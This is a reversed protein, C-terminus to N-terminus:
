DIGHICTYELLRVSNDKGTWSNYHLYTKNVCLRVSPRVSPWKEFFNENKKRILFIFLYVYTHIYMDRDNRLSWGRIGLTLICKKGHKSIPIFIYFYLFRFCLFILIYFYLFIFCTLVLIPMASVKIGKENM